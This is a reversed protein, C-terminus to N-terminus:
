HRSDNGHKRRQKREIANRLEERSLLEDGNSDAKDFLRDARKQHHERREQRHEEASIQGDGDQDAKQHRTLAASVAEETTVRGDGDMDMRQFLRGGMMHLGRHRGHGDLAGLDADDLYGSDDSDLEAFRQRAFAAVEDRSVQHDGNQDAPHLMRGQEDFKPTKHSDGDSRGRAQTAGVALALLTAGILTGAVAPLASGRATAHRKSTRTHHSM